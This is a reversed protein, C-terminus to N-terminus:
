NRCAGQTCTLGEACPLEAVGGCAEGQESTKFTTAEDQGCRRWKVDVTATSMDLSQLSFYGTDGNYGTMSEQVKIRLRVPEGCPSWLPEDSYLAHRDEEEFFSNAGVLKNTFVKETSNGEFQYSTTLTGYTGESRSVLEGFPLMSPSFSWGSPVDFEVEAEWSRSVGRMDESLYMSKDTMLSVAQGALSASGDIGILRANLVRVGDSEASVGLESNGNDEQAEFSSSSCAALTITVAGLILSGRYNM